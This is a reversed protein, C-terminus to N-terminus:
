PYQFGRARGAAKNLRPHPAPQPTPEPRRWPRSPTPPSLHSALRKRSQSYALRRPNMCLQRLSLPMATIAMIPGCAGDSTRRTCVTSLWFALLFPHSLSYNKGVWIGSTSRSSRTPMRGSMRSIFGPKCQRPRSTVASVAEPRCILGVGGKQKLGSYPCLLGHAARPGSLFLRRDPVVTTSTSWQMWSRHINSRVKRHLHKRLFGFM